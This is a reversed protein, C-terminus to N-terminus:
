QEYARGSRYCCPFLSWQLSNMKKTDTTWDINVFYKAWCLAKQKLNDIHVAGGYNEGIRDILMVFLPSSSLFAINLNISREPNRRCQIYFTDNTRIGEWSVHMLVLMEGWLLLVAGGANIEDNRFFIITGPLSGPCWPLIGWVHFSRNKCPM